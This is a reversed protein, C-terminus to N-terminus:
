KPYFIGLIKFYVFLTRRIKAKSNKEILENNITSKIKDIIKSYIDEGNNIVSKNYISIKYNNKNEIYTIIEYIENEFSKDLEEETDYYFINNIIMKAIINGICWGKFLKVINEKEENQYIKIIFSSFFSENIKTYYNNADTKNRIMLDNNIRSKILTEICIYNFGNNKESYLSGFISLLALNWVKICDVFYKSNETLGNFILFIKQLFIIEKIKNKVIENIEEESKKVKIESKEKENDYSNIVQEMIYLWSRGNKVAEETPNSKNIVIKNVINNTNKKKTIFNIKDMLIKLLTGYNFNFRNTGGRHIGIIKNNEFNLIPSGSSGSDTCCSHKMENNNENIEKLLGYSVAANKGNPYQIIYISMNRYSEKVPIIDNNLKDDLNLFYKINDDNNLEILAIDYINNFYTKREAGLDIVKFEKEDNLFLNIQNNEDYYKENLVHNCTMLCNMTKNNEIPITCFFGTGVAEDTKIKCICKKMQELIKETSSISVPEPSGTIKKELEIDDTKGEEM